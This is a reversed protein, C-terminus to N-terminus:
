RQNNENRIFAFKMCENFCYELTSSLPPFFYSSYRFYNFMNRMLENSVKYNKQENSILRILLLLHFWLLAKIENLERVYNLKAKWKTNTNKHPYPDLMKYFTEFYLM